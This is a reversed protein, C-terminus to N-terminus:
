TTSDSEDLWDAYTKGGETQKWEMRGNAPRGHVIAAAASPSAFVQDRTFTMHEANENRALTGDDELKQRLRKYGDDTGEWRSRATSGELVTFEGDIVRARAKYDLRTAKCIFEPSTQLKVAEASTAASTSETRGRLINVGLVPLLVKAQSLFYEMDSIDSEPLSIAPPRTSNLLRCRDAAASLEIFRSELYRAHAKTLNGDKSTLVLVRNWTDESGLRESRNHDRLRTRIEDAEGIYADTSDPSSPNEGILLYIGTRQTEKRKLLDGLGSRPAMILHGSWNGIEATMLGGSTGEVLFLRISKGVQAM